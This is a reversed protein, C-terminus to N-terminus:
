TNRCKANIDRQAGARCAVLRTEFVNGPTAHPLPSRRARHHQVPAPSQQTYLSKPQSQPQSYAPNELVGSM